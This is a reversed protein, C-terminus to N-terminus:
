RRSTRAAAARAAHGQHAGPHVRRAAGACHPEPLVVGDAGARARAPRFRASDRLQVRRFHDGKVDHIGYHLALRENLFTYNANLLDLVSQEDRFVSDIFLRLEERFDERLDGNCAPTRSSPRTPCRDGGAQGPEAVPVRLERGADARAPRGAHPQGAASLVADDHLKGAEAVDLLEDDPLSSWLFFSLRSALTSTTSAFSPAPSSAARRRPRLPLPLGSAGASGHARPAHRCRLGGDTHGATYFNMLADVIRPRRGPPPLRTARHRASSRSRACPEENQQARRIAPRLCAQPEADRQRRHSSRGASRSPTARAARSGPRRRARAIQLRDESEAFTRHVFTVVIEHPGAKATFNINKLRKNIADVAPDQKQDIAKMDEEGGITTEYILKRDLTVVLHNEFEMNYVWM